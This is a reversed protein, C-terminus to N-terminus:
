VLSAFFPRALDEGTPGTSAGGALVGLFVCAGPMNLPM